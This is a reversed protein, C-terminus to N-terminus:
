RMIKVIMLELDNDNKSLEVELVQGPRLADFAVTQNSQLLETDKTFSLGLVQGDLMEVLIEKDEMDVERAQVEYTGSEILAVQGLQTSGSENGDGCGLLTFMVVLFIGYKAKM